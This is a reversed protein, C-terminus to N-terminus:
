RLQRTPTITVVGTGIAELLTSVNGRGNWLYGLRAAEMVLGDHARETIRASITKKTDSVERQPRNRLHRALVDAIPDNDYTQM